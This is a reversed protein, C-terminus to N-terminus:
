ISYEKFRGNELLLLTAKRDNKPDALLIPFQGKDIRNMINPEEDFSYGMLKDKSGIRISYDPYGDLDLTALVKSEYAEGVKTHKFAVLRREFPKVGRQELIIVNDPLRDKPYPGEELQM